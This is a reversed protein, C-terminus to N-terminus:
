KLLLKEIYKAMMDVELNLLDGVKLNGLNTQSLTYPILSVNFSSKDVSVVTLSVGNLTTSGKYIIYKFFKNPISLSVVKSNGDQKVLKVIATTDIHGSVFHGSLLDSAKLSRELNFIHTKPLSSLTTKKLTEAMYFVSFGSKTVKTVTSCIGDINISEGEELEWGKPVPFILSLSDSKKIIETAKANKKIIGTFM